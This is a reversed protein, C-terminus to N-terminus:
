TNDAGGQFIQFGSSGTFVFLPCHVIGLKGVNGVFFSEGGDGLHIAFNGLCLLSVFLTIEGEGLVYLFAFYEHLVFLCWLIKVRQPPPM